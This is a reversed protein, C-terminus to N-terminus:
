SFSLHGNSADVPCLEIYTHGAPIQLVTGQATKFVFNSTPGAKSWTGPVAVGNHFLTMAGGSTLNTEPVPNGAPDLYGANDEQVRLVVVNDALFPQNGSYANTNVYQGNIFSFKTTRYGSFKVAISAAPAGTLAANAASFDFYPGPRNPSNEFYTVTQSLKDMLNYPAIRPRSYRVFGKSEDEQIFTVGAAHLAAITPAAAGSSVLIGNTPKVLGIDSNRMSRVPGVVGPMMSDYFVALRTIGGEVLEESVVDAQSLGLQPSAEPTNPVKVIMVPHNAQSAEPLGTLPWYAQLQVGGSTSQGSAGQSPKASSGCAALSGAVTVALAAMAVHGLRAKIPSTM